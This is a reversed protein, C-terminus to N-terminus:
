LGLGNGLLRVGIFALLLFMGARRVRRSLRPRLRKGLSVGALGPVAAVASLALLGGGEYLGFLGAVVVRVSSIGLFVMAVVGVFTTHDLDLSKLYAVVQVGVNSAGFVLGSVLGLLLKVGVTDSVHARVWAEGPVPYREQTFALFGFVFLGLAVTLPRTPVRSLLSMGAVTGVLAAAVFPWFREVCTRLGTGDLERVLSVNAALIPLIMVVVAVQPEVVIATLGTGVVSYGFGNVGTVLGGLVVIGFVVVALSPSLPGLSLM